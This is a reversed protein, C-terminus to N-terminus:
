RLKTWLLLLLFCWKGVSAACGINAAANTAIAVAIATLSTLLYYVQVIDWSPALNPNAESAPTAVVLLMLM